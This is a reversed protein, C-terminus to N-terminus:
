YAWFTQSGGEAPHEDRTRGALWDRVDLLLARYSPALYGPGDIDPSHLYRGTGEPNAYVRFSGDARVDVWLTRSSGDFFEQKYPKM